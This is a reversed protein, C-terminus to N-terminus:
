LRGEVFALVIPLVTKRTISSRMSMAKVFPTTTCGAAGGETWEDELQFGGPDSVGQNRYLPTDLIDAPIGEPAARLVEVLAEAQAAAGSPAAVVLGKRGGDENCICVAMGWGRAKCVAALAPGIGKGDTRSSAGAVTDFISPVGVTGRMGGRVEKMDLRVLDNFALDSVDYRQALLAAAWKGPSLIGDADVCPTKFGSELASSMALDRANHKPPEAEFNRADVRITALLLGRLDSPLVQDVDAGTVNATSEVPAADLAQRQLLLEAILTCASAVTSDVVVISAEPHQPPDEVKHHDIIYRVRGSLAPIDSRSNHDVLAGSITVGRATLGAWDVEDLHAVAAPAEDTDLEFGCERFLRVADRRLRFDARPFPLVPLAVSHRGGHQTEERRGLWYAAGISGVCSDLDGAMNGIVITIEKLEPDAIQARVDRCYQEATVVNAM